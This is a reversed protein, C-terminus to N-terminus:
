EGVAEDQEPEPVAAIQGQLQGQIKALLPSVENYPRQALVNLIYQVEQQEFDLQM